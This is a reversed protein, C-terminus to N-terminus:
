SLCSTEATIEEDGGLMCQKSDWNEVWLFTFVKRKVLEFNLSTTHAGLPWEGSSWRGASAWSCKFSWFIFFSFARLGAIGM